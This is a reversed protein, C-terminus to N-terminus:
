NTAFVINGALEDTGVVRGSVSSEYTGSCHMSINDFHAEQGDAPNGSYLGIGPNLPGVIADNIYALYSTKVDVWDAVLEGDLWARVVGSGEHNPVYEIDWRQWEGVNEMPIYQFREEEYPRDTM